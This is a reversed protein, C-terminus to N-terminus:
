TPRGPDYVDGVSESITNGHRKAVSIKFTTGQLDLIKEFDMNLVAYLQGTFDEDSKIGGSVNVALISNYVIFPAVGSAKLSDREGAWNGSLRDRAYWPESVTQATEAMAISSSLLMTIAILKRM